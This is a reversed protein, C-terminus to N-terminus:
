QKKMQIMIVGKSGKDGVKQLAKQGKLVNISEISDPDISSMDFDLGMEEGDIIIIPKMKNSDIKIKVKKNDDSIFVADGSYLSANRKSLVLSDGLKSAWQIAENPDDSKFIFVNKQTGHISDGIKHQFHGLESSGELFFVETDGKMLPAIIDSSILASKKLTHKKPEVDSNSEKKYLNVTICSTMFVSLGLLLIGKKM